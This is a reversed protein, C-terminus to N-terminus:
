IQIWKYGGATKARKNLVHSICSAKIDKKAAAEAISNFRQIIYGDKSIKYVSKKLSKRKDKDSFVMNLLNPYKRSANYASGNNMSFDKISDYKKAEELIREKTTNM